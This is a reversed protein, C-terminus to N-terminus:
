RTEASARGATLLLKELKVVDERNVAKMVAVKALDPTWRIPRGQPTKVLAFADATPMGMVFKDRKVSLFRAERTGEPILQMEKEALAYGDRRNSLLWVFTYAAGNDPDIVVAHRMVMTVHDAGQRMVARTADFLSLNPTRAVTRVDADIHKENEDLIRRGFMGMDAGFTRKSDIIIEKDRVTMAFGRAVTELTHAAGLKKSRALMTFKFMQAYHAAIKPADRADKETLTPVSIMLFNTWGEPVGKSVVTGSPIRPLPKSELEVHALPEPVSEGSGGGNDASVHERSVARFLFPNAEGREVACCGGLSCWLSLLGGVFGLGFLRVVLPRGSVM